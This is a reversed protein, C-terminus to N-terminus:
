ESGSICTAFLFSVKRFPHYKFSYLLFFNWINTNQRIVVLRVREGHNKKKKRFLPGM